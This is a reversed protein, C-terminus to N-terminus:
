IETGPEPTYDVLEVIDGVTLYQAEVLSIFGKTEIMGLAEVIKAMELEGSFLAPNHLDYTM